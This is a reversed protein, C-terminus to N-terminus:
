FNKIPVLVDCGCTGLVVDRTTVVNARVQEVDMTCEYNIKVPWSCCGRLGAEVAASSLIRAELTIQNAKQSCPQQLSQPHQTLATAMSM